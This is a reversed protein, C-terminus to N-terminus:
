NTLGAMPGLFIKQLGYIKPKFYQNLYSLHSKLRHLFLATAKFTIGPWHPWM